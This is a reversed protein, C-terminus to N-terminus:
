VLDDFVNIVLWFFKYHLEFALFQCFLSIQTSYIIFKLLKRGNRVDLLMGFSHQRKTSEIELV